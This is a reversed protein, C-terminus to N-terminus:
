NNYKNYIEDSVEEIETSLLRSSSYDSLAIGPENGLVFFLEVFEADKELEVTFELLSHVAEVIEDLDGTHVLFEDGGDDYGVLSYGRDILKELFERVEPYIKM